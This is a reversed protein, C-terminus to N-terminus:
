VSKARKSAHRFKKLGKLSDSISSVEQESLSAAGFRARYYADTIDAVGPLATEVAFERPTQDPRRRYGLRELSALMERYFKVASGAGDLGIRRRWSRRERVWLLLGAGLSLVGFLSLTAPHGAVAMVREVSSREGGESAEEAGSPTTAHSDALWQALSLRWEVWRSTAANQYAALWKQAAFVIAAQDGTNFGVVHEQWFMEVAEGWHRLRAMVGADYASLGDAPTPDFEVWHHEPFYVEVWSHADSQRVTYVDAVDSYEGMQFGNVVRAPVGRARLMLAMATAFYECHGKRYNFLFEALPDGDTDHVLDLSYQYSTRLHLEIRRSVDLTNTAGRTVEAALEDIRRDHDETLQLYRQRIEQPYVRSNDSRLVDDSPRRTDSLVVYESRRFPTRTTWLGDGSDRALTALDRLWVVRPAAFVTNINLPELVFTQRTLRRRFMEPVFGSDVRFASGDGFRDVDRAGAGTAAWGRGDYFDFTVGRWRLPRREEDAPTEVRVHMVVQRNLKVQAVEGLRLTDSFGSLATAPLFGDMGNQTIRPLALFLPAALVVILVLAIASFWALSRLRPSGTPTGAPRRYKVTVAQANFPQGARRLEFSILTSIASLLYLILLVFFTTNVTMGAALLMELFSVLCLWRWDRDNRRRLLKTASVILLLHVLAVVPFTGFIRAEAVALPLCGIAIWKAGGASLEYRLKGADILWAAVLVGSFGAISVWDLQGTAALTVLSTTLLAFASIRFYLALTM